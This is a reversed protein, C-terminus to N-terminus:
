VGSPQQWEDFLSRWRRSGADYHLPGFSYAALDLRVLARYADDPLGPGLVVEIGTEEDRLLVLGAIAAEGRALVEIFARLAPWAPEGGTGQGGAQTSGLADLFRALSIEVLLVWSGGDTAEYPARGVKAEISHARFAEEAVEAVNSPAAGYIVVDARM